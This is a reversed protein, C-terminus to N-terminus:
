IRDRQSNDSPLSMRIFSGFLVLTGAVVAAKTARAIDQGIKTFFYNSFINKRM